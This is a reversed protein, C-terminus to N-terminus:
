LVKMPFRDKPTRKFQPTREMVHCSLVLCQQVKWELTSQQTGQKQLTM